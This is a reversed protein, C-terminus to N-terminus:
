PILLPHCLLAPCRLIATRPRLRSLGRPILPPHHMGCPIEWLERRGQPASASGVATGRRPAPRPAAAAGAGGRPSRLACRWAAGHRAASRARPPACHVRRCRGGRRPAAGAPAPRRGRGIQLTALSFPRPQRLFRAAHRAAACWGVRPARSFVATVDYLLLRAAGACQPRCLSRCHRPRALICADVSRM